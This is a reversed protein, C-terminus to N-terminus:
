WGDEGATCALRREQGIAALLQVKARQCDLLEGVPIEEGRGRGRRAAIRAIERATSSM